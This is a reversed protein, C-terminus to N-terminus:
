IKEPIQRLQQYILGGKQLRFVAQIEMGLLLSTSLTWDCLFVAYLQYRRTNAGEL